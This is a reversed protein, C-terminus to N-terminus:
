DPYYQSTDPQPQPEQETPPPSREAYFLHPHNQLTWRLYDVAANIAHSRNNFIRRQILDDIMDSLENELTITVPKSKVRNHTARRNQSSMYPGEFLFKRILNDYVSRINVM